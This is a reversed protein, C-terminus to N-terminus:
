AILSGGVRSGSCGGRGCISPRARIAVILRPRPAPDRERRAAALLYSADSATVRERELVLTTCAKATAGESFSTDLIDTPL